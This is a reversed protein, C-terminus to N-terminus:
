ILKGDFACIVYPLNCKEEFDKAVVLWNEVSYPMYANISALADYVVRCTEPIIKSITQRETRYQFSLSVRVEGTALHRLTLSLRQEPLIPKRYKNTTKTVRPAVLTFLHKFRNPIMRMYRFYMERDGVCLKKIVNYSSNEKNM